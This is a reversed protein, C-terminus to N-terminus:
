SYLGERKEEESLLAHQFKTTPPTHKCGKLNKIELTRVEVHRQLLPETAEM